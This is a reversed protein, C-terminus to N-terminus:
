LEGQAGCCAVQATARSIAVQWCAVSRSRRGQWGVRARSPGTQPNAHALPARAGTMAGHLATYGRVGSECGACGGEAERGARNGEEGMAQSGGSYLRPRVVEGTLEFIHGRAQLIVREQERFGGVKIWEVRGHAVKAREAGLGAVAGLLDNALSEFARRARGLARDVRHATRVVLQGLPALQEAEGGEELRPEHSLHLPPQLDPRAM